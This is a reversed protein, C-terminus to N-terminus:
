HHCAAQALQYLCITTTTAITATPPPRASWAEAEETKCNKISPEHRKGGAGFTLILDPFQVM